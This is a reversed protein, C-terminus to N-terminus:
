RSVWYALESAFEFRRVKWGRGAVLADFAEGYNRVMGKSRGGLSHAPFSVLLHEAPIADLLRAGITKDVQELCPITKLLLAVQVPRDPVRTTLDCLEVGGPLGIHALFRTDFLAMDAYIDCGWYVADEALPMWPATLPNLGCALDLLSHLPAIQSLTEQFFHEVLPLRERTSAHQRMMKRAFDQLAPHNRDTPLGDLEALARTYDIAQEQYAGGVQHLKNRTAKVAEKFSRGKLLEQAGIRLVLDESIANYRASDRVAAVLEDLRDMQSM